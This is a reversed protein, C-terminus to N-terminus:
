RCLRRSYEFKLVNKLKWGHSKWVLWWCKDIYVCILRIGTHIVGPTNVCQGRVGTRLPIRTVEPITTLDSLTSSSATLSYHDSHFHRKLEQFALSAAGCSCHHIFFDQFLTQISFKDWVYLISAMKNIWKTLWRNIFAYAHMTFTCM